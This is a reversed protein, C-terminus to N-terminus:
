FVEGIELVPYVQGEYEVTGHLVIEDKYESNWGTVTVGGDIVRYCIGDVEFDQAIANMAIIFAIIFMSLKKM